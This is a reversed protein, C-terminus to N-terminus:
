TGPGDMVGLIVDNILEDEMAVGSDILNRLKRGYPEDFSGILVKDSFNYLSYLSTLLRASESHISIGAAGCLKAEFATKIRENLADDTGPLLLVFGYEDLKEDLWYKRAKNVIENYEKM